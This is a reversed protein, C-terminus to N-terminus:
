GTGLIKGLGGHTLGITDGSQFYSLGAFSPTMSYQGLKVIDAM